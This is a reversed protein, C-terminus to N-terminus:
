LVDPFLLFLFKPWLFTLTNNLPVRLFNNPPPPVSSFLPTDWFKSTYFPHIHVIFTKDLPLVIEMCLHPVQPIFFLRCVVKWCHIRRQLCITEPPSPPVNSESYKVVKLTGSTSPPPIPTKFIEGNPLLLRLFMKSCSLKVDTGREERTLLM